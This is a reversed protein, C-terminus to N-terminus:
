CQLWCLVMGLSRHVFNATVVLVNLDTQLADTWGYETKAHQLLVALVTDLRFWHQLYLLQRAFALVNPISLKRMRTLTDPTEYIGSALLQPVLEKETLAVLRVGTDSLHNVTDKIMDSFVQAAGSVRVLEVREGDLSYNGVGQLLTLVSAFKDRDSEYQTQHFEIESCLVQFPTRRIVEEQAHGKGRRKTGKSGQQSPNKQAATTGTHTSDITANSASSGHVSKQSKGLEHTDQTSKKVSDTSTRSASIADTSEKDETAVAEWSPDLKMKIRLLFLQQAIRGKARDIFQKTEQDMPLTGQVHALSLHLMGFCKKELDELEEIKARSRKIWKLMEMRYGLASYCNLVSLYVDIRKDLFQAGILPIFTEYFVSLYLLPEL